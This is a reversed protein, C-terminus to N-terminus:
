SSHSILFKLLDTSFKFSNLCPFPVQNRLHSFLSQPSREGEVIERAAEEFVQEQAANEDFVGDFRFEHSTGTRRRADLGTDLVTLRVKNEFAACGESPHPYPRVRAFAKIHMRRAVSLILFSLAFAESPNITKKTSQFLISLFSLFLNDRERAYM